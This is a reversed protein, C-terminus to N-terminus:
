PANREREEQREARWRKFNIIETVSKLIIKGEALRLARFPRGYAGRACEDLDSLDWEAERLLTDIRAWNWAPPIM